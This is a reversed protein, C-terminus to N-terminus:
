DKRRAALRLQARDKEDLKFNGRLLRSSVGDEDVYVTQDWVFKL